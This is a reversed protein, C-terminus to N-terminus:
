ALNIVLGRLKVAQSGLQAKLREAMTRASKDDRAVLVIDDVVEAFRGILGDAKVPGGDVIVPGFRHTAAFAGTRLSGAGAPPIVGAYPMFTLGTGEDKMIARGLAAQGSMVDGLGVSADAAFVPTLGHAGGAADVLLAPLGSQAADLALNLALTTAGAQPELGVVLIRRRQEGGAAGALARRTAAIATAFGSQPKDIVDVLHAQGQFVSRAEAVDRRWRRNRVQPITGLRPLSVPESVPQPAAEPVPAADPPNAARKASGGPIAM